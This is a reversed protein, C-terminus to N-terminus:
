EQKKSPGTLIDPYLKSLCKPCIGHSFDAESHDRVYHEVEHWYGKEDRIRKCSACIPLLGSLTKVQALAVELDGITKEREIQTRRGLMSLLGIAVCIPMIFADLFGIMSSPSFIFLGKQDPGVISLISRIGMAAASSLFLVAIVIHQLRVGRGPLRLLRFAIVACIVMHLVSAVFARFTFGFQAYSVFSLVLCVAIWALGLGYHLRQGAYAEIGWAILVLGALVLTNALPISFLDPIRGRLFILLFSISRLLFGSAWWTTVGNMGLFNSTAVGFTVAVILSQIIIFMLSLMRIDVSQM